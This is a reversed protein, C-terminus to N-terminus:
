PHYTFVIVYAVGSDNRLVHGRFTLGRTLPDFPPPLIIPPQYRSIDALWEAIIRFDSMGPVINPNYAMGEWIGHQSTPPVGVPVSFNDDPNMPGWGPSLRIEQTPLPFRLLSATGVALRNIYHNDFWDDTTVIVPLTDTSIIYIAQLVETYAIRDGQFRRLSAYEQQFRAAEADRNVSATVEGVYLLAVVILGLLFAAALIGLLFLAKNPLFTDM